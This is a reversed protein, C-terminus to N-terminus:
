VRKFDFKALYETKGLGEKRETVKRILLCPRNLFTTEEQLGGGDAVTFESNKVLKMFSIYDLYEDAFVIKSNNKIKDLLGYKELKRKTLMHCVFLTNFNKSIEELVGVAFETKSKVFLTEKRHFLAVVYPKKLYKIKQKTNVALKVSDFVTNAKTNFIKGKIKEKKLNNVAWDSPAFLYDSFKSVILRIAEEPFPNLLNYSRLGAEIHAVKLGNLKAIILALLTSETDGHIIAVGKEPFIKKNNINKILCRLFWFVLDTINIVDKKRQSLLLDPKKLNFEKIIDDTIKTHQRTHIFKYNVESKDLERLVPAMKIFQGKTGLIVYIV